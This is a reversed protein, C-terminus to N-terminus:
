ADDTVEKGIGFLRRRPDDDALWQVDEAEDLPEHHHDVPLEDPEETPEPWKVETVFKEQLWERVEELEAESLDNEM